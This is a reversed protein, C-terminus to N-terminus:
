LFLISIGMFIIVLFKMELKRDNRPVFELEKRLNEGYGM